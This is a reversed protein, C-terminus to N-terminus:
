SLCTTNTTTAHPSLQKAAHPIKTGLGPILGMNEANRPPNKVVPGGPFGRWSQTLWLVVMWTHGCNRLLVLRIGGLIIGKFDNWKTNTQIQSCTVSFWITLCTNKECVLIMPKTTCNLALAYSPSSMLPKTGDKKMGWRRWCMITKEHDFFLWNMDWCVQAQCSIPFSYPHLSWVASTQTLMKDM